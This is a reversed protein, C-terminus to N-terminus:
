ASAHKAGCVPADDGDEITDLGTVTEISIWLRAFLDAPTM